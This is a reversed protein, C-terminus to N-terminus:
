KVSESDDVTLANEISYSSPPCVHEVSVGCGRLRQQVMRVLTDSAETHNFLSQEGDDAWVRFPEDFEVNIVIPITATM